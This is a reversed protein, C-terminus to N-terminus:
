RHWSREQTRAIDRHQQKERRELVGSYLTCGCSDQVFQSGETAADRASFTGHSFAPMNSGADLYM